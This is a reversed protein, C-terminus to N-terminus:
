PTTGGAKVLGHATGIAKFLAAITSPFRRNRDALNVIQHALPKALRTKQGKMADAAARERGGVSM